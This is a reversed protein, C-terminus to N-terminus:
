GSAWSLMVELGDDARSEALVWRQAQPGSVRSAAGNGSQKKLAAQDTTGSSAPM